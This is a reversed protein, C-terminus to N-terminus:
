NAYDSGGRIEDNNFKYWKGIFQGMDVLGLAAMQGYKIYNNQDLLMIEGQYDNGDAEFDFSAQYKMKDEAWVFDGEVSYVLKGKGAEAQDRYTINGDSVLHFSDVQAMQIVMDSVVDNPSNSCSSLIFVGMLLFLSLRILKNNKKM